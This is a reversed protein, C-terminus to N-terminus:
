QFVTSTLSLTPQSVSTYRKSAHTWHQQNWLLRCPLHLSVHCPLLVLRIRRHGWLWWYWDHPLWRGAGASCCTLWAAEWLHDFYSFLILQKTWGCWTLHVREGKKGHSCLYCLPQPSRYSRIEDWRQVMGWEAWRRKGPIIINISCVCKLLLNSQMIFHYM